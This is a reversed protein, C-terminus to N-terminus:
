PAAGKTVGMLEALIMVATSAASLGAGIAMYMWWGKLARFARHLGTGDRALHADIGKIYRRLLTLYLGMVGAIIVLAFGIGVRAFTPMPALAAAVLLGLGAVISVVLGFVYIINVWWRANALAALEEGTLRLPPDDTTPPSLSTSMTM